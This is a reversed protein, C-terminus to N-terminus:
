SKPLSPQQKQQVADEVTKLADHWPGDSWVQQAQATYLLEGTPVWYFDLSDASFVQSLVILVQAHANGAFTLQAKLSEGYLAKGTPDCTFHPIGRTLEEFHNMNSLQESKSLIWNKPGPCIMLRTRAPLVADKFEAEVPVPLSAPGAEPVASSSQGTGPRFYFDGEISSATWPIQRDRSARRVGTLVRKFADELKLGPIRIVSLLQETYLGNGSVGDAASRGPATAFAIFTGTPADLPALGQSASRFSRAFPNDRCADLIVINLRNRATELKALVQDVDLAVGPIEDEQQIDAGVPILYNKGKVQMGHGAYYFLGVGGKAIRNGFERLGERMKRYDANELAIVRFGCFELAEKMARADNVPNKLAANEYAANGIVLAVRPEGQLEQEGTPVVAVARATGSPQTAAVQARLAHGVPALLVLVLMARFM